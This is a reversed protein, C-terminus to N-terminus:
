SDRSTYLLRLSVFQAPLGAAIRAASKQM